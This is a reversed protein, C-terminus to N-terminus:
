SHLVSPADVKHRHHAEIIEIDVTDGFVQAALELLKISVNVGVSYNAAYVVPIQKATDNLLQKQEDSL